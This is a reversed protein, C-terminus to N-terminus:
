IPSRYTTATIMQTTEATVLFRLPIDSSAVALSIGRSYHAVATPERGSRGPAWGKQMRAWWSVSVRYQVAGPETSARKESGKRKRRPLLSPM